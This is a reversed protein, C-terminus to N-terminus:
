LIFEVGSIRIQILCVAAVVILLDDWGLSSTRMMKRSLVRTATIIVIVFISIAIGAVISGSRNDHPPTPIQPLPLGKAPDMDSHGMRFLLGKVIWYDDETVPPRGFLASQAM